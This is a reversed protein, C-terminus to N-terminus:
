QMRNFNFLTDLHHINTLGMVKPSESPSALHFFKLGKPLAKLAYNAYELEHQGMWTEQIEFIESGLLGTSEIM